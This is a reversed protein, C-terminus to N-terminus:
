WRPSSAPALGYDSDKEWAETKQEKGPWQTWLRDGRLIEPFLLMIVQTPVTTTLLILTSHLPSHLSPSEIRIDYRM